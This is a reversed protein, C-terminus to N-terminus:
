RQLRVRRHAKLKTGAAQTATVYATANIRKGRTRLMRRGAKTLKLKASLATGAKTTKAHGRALVKGHMDRVVFTCGRVQGADLKCGLKLLARKVKVRKAAVIRVKTGATQGAGAIPGGGGAGPGGGGASPDGSQGAGPQAAVGLFYGTGNEGLGAGIGTVTGSGAAGGASGVTSAALDYGAPATVTLAYNGPLLDIFRYSGDPGTVTTANAAGSLTVTVGAVGNAGEVVKGFLGTFRYGFDKGALTDAVAATMVQAAPALADVTAHPTVTISGAPVGTITWTGDAASTASQSFGSATVDIQRGALGPENADHLGEYDQDDWALGSITGGTEGFDFANTSQAATVTVSTFQDAGAVAGPATTVEAGDAYTAPQAEAVTRNSGAYVPLSFSGDAASTAPLSFNNGDYSGTVIIAAGPIGPEGAQHGPTGNTEAFVNGTLMGMPYQLGSDAVAYNQGATVNALRDPTTAAYPAKSVAITYSGAPLVPSGTTWIGGAASNVNMNVPGTISATAGTVGGEGANQAGNGNIDNFAGGTIKAGVVSYDQGSTVQADVVHVTRQGSAPSVFSFLSSVKVHYDFGAGGYAQWSWTGDAATVVSHVFADSTTNVTVTAGSIPVNPGSPPDYYVTGQMTGLASAGAPFALAVVILLGPILRTRPM